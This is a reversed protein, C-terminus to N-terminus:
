VLMFGLKFEYKFGNWMCGQQYLIWSFYFFCHEGLLLQLFIVFDHKCNNDNRIVLLLLM